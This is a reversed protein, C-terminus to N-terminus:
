GSRESGTARLHCHRKARRWAQSAAGSARSRRPHRDWTSLLTSRDAGGCQGPGRPRHQPPVTAPAVPPISSHEHKGGTDDVELDFPSRWGAASSRGCHHGKGLHDAVKAVRKNGLEETDAGDGRDLGVARAPQQLTQAGGKNAVHLLALLQGAKPLTSRETVAPHSHGPGLRAVSRGNSVEFAGESKPVGLRTMICHRQFQWRAPGQFIEGRTAASAEAQIRM